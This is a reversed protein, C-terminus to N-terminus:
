NMPKKLKEKLQPWKDEFTPLKTQYIIGIPIKGKKSNYDFEDALQLAKEMNYKNDPIKYTRTLLEKVEKNFYLCPQIMEVFAFGKHKIAKELIRVTDEIDKPLARAIFTTGSALALKIPNFPFNFEGM